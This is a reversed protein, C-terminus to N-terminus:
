ASIIIKGLKEALIDEGLEYAYSQARDIHFAAAKADRDRVRYGALELHRQLAAIKYHRMFKKMPAKSISYFEGLYYEIVRDKIETSAPVPGFELLSVLDFLVPLRIRHEFDIAVVNGNDEVLWNRPNADKYWGTPADSLEDKVREGLFQFEDKISSPIEKCMPSNALQDYFCSSLRNQYYSECAIVQPEPIMSQHIKALLRAAEDMCKLKEEPSGTRMVDELTRSTGHKLVHYAKGDREVYAISQVIRDGLSNKLSIINEREQVLRSGQRADCRKFVLLGKLFESAAYELVENRSEGMVRFKQERSPDSLIAGIADNWARSTREDLETERLLLHPFIGKLSPLMEAVSQVAYARAALRSPTKEGAAFNDAASLAEELDGQRLYECMLSFPSKSGARGRVIESSLPLTFYREFDTSPLAKAATRATDKLLNCAEDVKGQEFLLDVLEIDLKVPIAQGPRLKELIAQKKAPDKLSVLPFAWYINKAHNILYPPNYNSWIASLIYSLIGSMAAIGLAYPADEQKPLQSYYALGYSAGAAIGALGPKEVAPQLFSPTKGKMRQIVHTAGLAGVSLATGYLVFKWFREDGRRSREAQENVSYAPNPPVVQPRNALLYTAGAAFLAIPILRKIRDWLGM